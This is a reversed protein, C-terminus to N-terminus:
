LPSGSHIELRDIYTQLLNPSRRGRVNVGVKICLEGICCNPKMHWAASSGRKSKQLSIHALPLADDSFLLWSPGQFAARSYSINVGHERSQDVLLCSSRGADYYVFRLPAREEVPSASSHLIHTHAHIPRHTHQYGPWEVCSDSSSFDTRNCHLLFERELPICTHLSM